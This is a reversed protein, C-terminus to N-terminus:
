GYVTSSRSVMIPASLVSASGPRCARTNDYTRSVVLVLLVVRVLVYLLVVLLRSNLSTTNSSRTNSLVLETVRNYLTQTITVDIDFSNHDFAVDEFVM